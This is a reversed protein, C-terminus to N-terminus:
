ELIAYFLTGFISHTRSIPCGEVFGIWYFSCVQLFHDPRAILDLSPDTQQTGVSGQTRFSFLFVLTAIYRYVYCLVGTNKESRLELIVSKLHM